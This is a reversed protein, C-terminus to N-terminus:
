QMCFSSLSFFFSQMGGFFLQRSRKRSGKSACPSKGDTVEMDIEDKIKRVTLGEETGSCAERDDDYHDNEMSGPKPRKGRYKKVRLHSEVFDRAFDGNEAERSGLSGELCDDDMHIGTIKSNTM